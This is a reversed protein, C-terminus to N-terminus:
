RRCILSRLKGAVHMAAPPDYNSMVAVDYGPDFYIDLQSNIGSFGGGHGVVRHGNVVQEAFGYGYKEGPHSEVKGALVLETLEAGLLRGGRLAQAFSMGRSNPGM